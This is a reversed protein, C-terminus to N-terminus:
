PDAKLTAVGPVRGASLLHRMAARDHDLYYKLFAITVREVVGLQVRNTSYPGLHSGGLLQLLYKPSSAPGFFAATASPLNITDATGQTAMLPPGGPAIQFPSLMPIEAGSLIVAAQLHPDRLSPDYALALATDGGDSHGAVAIEHPSILGSLRGGPQADLHLLSSIVFRMDQPQNPLDSRNLGGPAEPNERPFIPAAVVFGASTWYRLLRSYATPMLDFGHGFIILPFPGDARAPRSGRVAAGAGTALTPYRVVTTVPRPVVQGSPLTITRTSDILHLTMVGVGYSKPASPRGAGPSADDRHHTGLTTPERGAGNAPRATSIMNAIVLVFIAVVTILAM